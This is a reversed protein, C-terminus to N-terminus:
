NITFNTEVMWCGIGQCGEIMDITNSSLSTGPIVEKRKYFGLIQNDNELDQPIIIEMGITLEASLALNNAIAIAVATYVQGTQAIAIDFLSQNNLVKVKKM